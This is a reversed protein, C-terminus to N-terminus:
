EDAVERPDLDFGGAVPHLPRALNVVDNVTESVSLAVYGVTRMARDLAWLERSTLNPASAAVAAVYDRPDDILWSALDHRLEARLAAAAQTIDTPPGLGVLTVEPTEDGAWARIEAHDPRVHALLRNRASRLSVQLRRAPRSISPDIEGDCAHLFAAFGEEESDLPSGLARMWLRGLRNLALDGIAIFALLDAQARAPVLRDDLNEGHRPHDEFSRGLAGHYAPSSVAMRELTVAWANLNQALAMLQHDELERGKSFLETAVDAVEDKM